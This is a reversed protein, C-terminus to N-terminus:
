LLRTKYLLIKEIGRMRRFRTRADGTSCGHRIVQACSCANTATSRMLQIMAASEMRAGIGIRAICLMIVM